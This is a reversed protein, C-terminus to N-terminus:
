GVSFARISDIEGQRAAQKMQGATTACSYCGLFFADLAGPPPSLASVASVRSSSGVGGSGTEAGDFGARESREVGGGGSVL